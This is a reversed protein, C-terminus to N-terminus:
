QLDKKMQLIVVGAAPATVRYEHAMAVGAVWVIRGQADVVIPVRDRERRPIKRDVLLDQLKRSGPAGLPRLRDGPRRSRVSLPLDLADAQLAVRDSSTGIGVAGGVPGSKMISAMVTAGTEAIEAVGPVPLPWHFAGSQLGTRGAPSSVQVTAGQRDITARPLDLHGRGAPARALRRVREIDACSPRGGVAELGQRVVRRALAAPLAQLARSDFQVGGGRFIGITAFVEGAMTSLCEEDDAALAAFRALARVGGPWDQTVRPMVSARLRNRPIVLDDNSRDLRFAQGRADLYDRLELRTCDLLPRVVSGRVARIAAVGRSATGRLLRLLVTEAQDDLTHGTAVRAAEMATLAEDFAAYRLDRAAAEISVHRARAAALTDVRAVHIPRNLQAALERCFAEDEDADGPRLGHHVHVLGALEWGGRRELEALLLCLAVSDPGGSVAALVRDAASLLARDRIFRQVRAHLPASV